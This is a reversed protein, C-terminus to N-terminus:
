LFNREIVFPNKEFLKLLEKTQEVIDVEVMEPIIPSSFRLFNDLVDALRVSERQIISLLEKEDTSLPKSSKLMQAAGSISGLPNKIEHAMSAAMEGLSVLRKKLELQERMKAM